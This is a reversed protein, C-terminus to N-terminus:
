NLYDDLSETMPTEKLIERIMASLFAFLPTNSTFFYALLSILLFIFQMRKKGKLHKLLYKIKAKLLLYRIKLLAHSSMGKLETKILVQKATELGTSQLIENTAPSFKLQLKNSTAAILSPSSAALTKALEQVLEDRIALLFLSLIAGKLARDKLLFKMVRRGFLLRQLASLDGGITDLDSNPNPNSKSKFEPEEPFFYNIICYTSLTVWIYILVRRSEDQM